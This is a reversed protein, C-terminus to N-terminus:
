LRLSKLSNITYRKGQVKKKDWSVALTIIIKCGAKRAIKVDSMKDAIYTIDKAKVKYKRAIAKIADEKRSFNESYYTKSFYKSIKNKRLIANAFRGASNTLLIVAYGKSKLKKLAEKTYPALKIRGAKKSIDNNIRNKLIKLTKPKFKKINKLTIEVKPGLARSIHSKPYIFYHELLSNHITDIYINRSDILTGDLDFMVVKKM